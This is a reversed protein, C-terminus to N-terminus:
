ANVQHIRSTSGPHAVGLRPSDHSQGRRSKPDPHRPMPSKGDVIDKFFSIRNTDFDPVLIALQAKLAGETAAVAGNSDETLDECQKQLESVLVEALDAQVKEEIVLGRFRANSAKLDEEARLKARIAEAKEEELAVKQQNLAKADGLSKANRCEVADAIALSPEVSEERASSSIEVLREGVDGVNTSSGGDPEVQTKGASETPVVQAGSIPVVASSSPLSRTLAPHILRRLRSLTVDNGAMKAIAKRSEELSGLLPNSSLNNKSFLFTLIDATDKKNTNLGEYKVPPIDFGAQDSWYPPFYGDGELSLWFHRHNWVAFIKFYQGKFDHFSDEYLTFIKRNKTPRVSMYGKETRGWTNSYYFKFLFLFVEPEQPLQLFETVLEFCRISAWAKPHLQSPAMSAWNLLCQQFDTFPVRVGFDTFMVENVWREGHRAAEVGYRQELGGGGFLIGTGTFEELYGQDLIPPAGLVENSVWRYISPLEHPIQVATAAMVDRDGPRNEAM